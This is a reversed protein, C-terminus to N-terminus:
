QLRWGVVKVDLAAGTAANTWKGDAWKCRFPLRYTGRNDVVLVDVSHLPATGVSWGRRIVETEPLEARM